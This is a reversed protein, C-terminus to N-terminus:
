KKENKYWNEDIQPKQNDLASAEQQLKEAQDKLDQEEKALQEDEKQTTNVLEKSDKVLLDLFLSRFKLILLGIVAFIILWRYKNWLDNIQIKVKSFLDNFLEKM